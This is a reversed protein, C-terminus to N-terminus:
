RSRPDPDAAGRPHPSLSATAQLCGDLGIKHSKVFDSTFGPLELLSTMTSQAVAAHTAAARATAAKM